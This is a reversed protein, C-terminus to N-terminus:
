MRSCFLHIEKGPRTLECLPQLSDFVASPKVGILMTSEPLSSNLRSSQVWAHASGRTSGWNYHLGEAPWKWGKPPERDM